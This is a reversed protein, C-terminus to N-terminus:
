YLKTKKWNVKNKGPYRKPPENFPVYEDKSSNKRFISRILYYPLYICVYVLFFSLMWESFGSTHKMEEGKYVGKTNSFLGM